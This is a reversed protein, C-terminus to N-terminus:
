SKQTDNLASARAAELDLRLDNYIQKLKDVPLDLKNPTLSLPYHYKSENTM